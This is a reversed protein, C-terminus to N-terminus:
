PEVGDVKGAVEAAESSEPIEIEATIWCRRENGGEELGDLATQMALEGNPDTEASYGHISYHGHENMVCAARVIKTKM